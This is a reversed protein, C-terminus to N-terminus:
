PTVAVACCSGRTRLRVPLVIKRKLRRRRHDLQEYLRGLQALLARFQRHRHARCASPTTIPVKVIL